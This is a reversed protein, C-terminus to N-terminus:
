KGRSGQQRTADLLRKVGNLAGRVTTENEDNKPTLDTDLLRKVTKQAAMEAIQEMQEPTVDDEEMAAAIDRRFKDMDLAGPDWKGTYSTEKHARNHDAPWGYRKSTAAAATVM